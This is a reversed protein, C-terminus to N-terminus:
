REDDKQRRRELAHGRDWGSGRMWNFPLWGPGNIMNQYPTCVWCEDHRPVIDWPPPYELDDKGDESDREEKVDQRGSWFSRMLDLVFELPFAQHLNFSLM